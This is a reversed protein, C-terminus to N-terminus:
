SAHRARHCRWCLTILNDEADNGLQSRSTMHHVELGATACCSQCSWRDRELVSQRLGRYSETDLQIRPRKPRLVTM